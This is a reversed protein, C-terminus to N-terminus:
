TRLRQVSVSDFSAIIPLQFVCLSNKTTTRRYKTYPFWKTSLTWFLVMGIKTQFSLFNKAFFFNKLAFKSEADFEVLQGGGGEVHSNQNKAFKFEADFEMLGGGGGEVHPNQIKAFKFEADFEVLGGGWGWNTFARVVKNWNQQQGFSLIAILLVVVSLSQLWIDVGPIWQESWYM